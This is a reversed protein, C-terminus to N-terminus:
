LGYAVSTVSTSVARVAKVKLSFRNLGGPDEYLKFTLKEYRSPVTSILAM